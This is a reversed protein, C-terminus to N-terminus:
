RGRRRIVLKAVLSPASMGTLLRGTHTARWQCAGNIAAMLATNDGRM